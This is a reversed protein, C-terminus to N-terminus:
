KIGRIIEKIKFDKLNLEKLIFNIGVIPEMDGCTFCDVACYNKEPFSHLSIHSEALLIVITIGQPDFKHSSIKLITAKMEKCSNILVNELYSLDDLTHRWDFIELLSHKIM